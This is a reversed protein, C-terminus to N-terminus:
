KAKNSIACIRTFEKHDVWLQYFLLPCKEEEVLRYLDDDYDFVCGELLYAQIFPNVSSWAEWTDEFHM